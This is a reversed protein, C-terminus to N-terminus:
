VATDMRVMAMREAESEIVDSAASAALAAQQM